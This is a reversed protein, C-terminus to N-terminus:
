LDRSIASLTGAGIGINISNGLFIIPFCFAVAALANTSLRGLYITDVVGASMMALIALWFPLLMRLIHKPVSGQTLDVSGKKKM